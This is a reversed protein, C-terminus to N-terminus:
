LRILVGLWLSLGAWEWFWDEGAGLAPIEIRYNGLKVEWALLEVKVCRLVADDDDDNDCYYSYIM